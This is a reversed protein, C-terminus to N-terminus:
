SQKGLREWRATLDAMFQQASGWYIQVPAKRPFYQQISRELYDIVEKEAAEDQKASEIQVALQM